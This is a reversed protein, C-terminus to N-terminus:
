NLGGKKQTKQQSECEFKVILCRCDKGCNSHIVRHALALNCCGSAIFGAEEDSQLTKTCLIKDM